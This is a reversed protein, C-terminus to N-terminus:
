AVCVKYLVDGVLTGTCAFDGDLLHKAVVADVALSFDETEDAVVTEVQFGCFSDTREQAGEVEPRGVFTGFGIEVDIIYIVVVVKGHEDAFGALSQRFGLRLLVLM